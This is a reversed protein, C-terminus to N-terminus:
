PSFEINIEESNWSINVSASGVEFRGFSIRATHYCNNAVQIKYPIRLLQISQQDERPHPQQINRMDVQARCIDYWLCNSSEDEASAEDHTAVAWPVDQM